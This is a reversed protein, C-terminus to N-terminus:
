AIRLVAATQPGLDVGDEALSAPGTALLLETSNLEVIQPTEALNVAVLL